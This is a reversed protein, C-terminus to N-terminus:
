GGNEDIWKNIALKYDIRNEFFPLHGCNRITILQAAAVQQAITLSQEPPVIPDLGGTLVLTPACIRPLLEGIDIDPMAIFYKISDHLSLHKFSIYNEHLIEKINPNAAFGAPDAVYFRALANYISEWHAMRFLLKFVRQGLAGQRALRQNMGLWGTWQGRAFGSISIVKHAMEPMHAAINLAAFGGTSHGVLIVPQKKVLKQIAIIQLHALLEANLDSATFGEPFIAPYHGPLSLAWCPGLKLFPELLDASWFNVSALIGHILIVPIGEKEPNFNIAALRHGQIQIEQLIPM